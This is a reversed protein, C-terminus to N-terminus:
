LLGAEKLEKISMNDIQKNTPINTSKRKNDFFGLNDSVERHFVDKDRGLRGARESSAYGDIDRKLNNISKDRFYSLLKLAAQQKGKGLKGMVAESMKNKVSDIMDVPVDSRQVDGESMTGVENFVNRASSNQVMGSSIPQGSELASILNNASDIGSKTKEHKNSFQDIAKDVRGSKKEEIYNQQRQNTESQRRAGEKELNKKVRKGKIIEGSALFNEVGGKGDERTFVQEGTVTDYSDPTIDVKREAVKNQKALQEERKLQFDRFGQGLKGGQEAGAVAGESGEILAGIGMGILNPAFFALGEMFQNKVSPKKEPDSGAAVAGIFREPNELDKKGEEKEHQQMNPDADIAEGGIAQLNPDTSLMQAGIMKSQNEAHTEAMVNDIIEPNQNLIEQSQRADAGESMNTADLMFGAAGLARGGLKAGKAFRSSKLFPIRKSSGEVVDDIVSLAKSPKSSAAKGVVQASARKTLAGGSPTTFNPKGGSINKVKGILRGSNRGGTAKGRINSKNIAKKSAEKLDKNRSVDKMMRKFKRLKKQERESLAM